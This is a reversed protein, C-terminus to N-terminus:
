WRNQIQNVQAKTRVAVRSCLAESCGVGELTVTQSVGNARTIRVELRTSAARGEEPAAWASGALAILGVLACINKKM